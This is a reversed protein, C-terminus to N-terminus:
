RSYVFCYRGYKLVCMWIIYHPWCECRTFLQIFCSANLQSGCMKYYVWNVIYVANIVCEAKYLGLWGGWGGSGM